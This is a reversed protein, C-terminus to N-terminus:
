AAPSEVRVLVVTVNDKGGRANAADILEQAAGALPKGRCLLAGIEEDPLMKSLGDSCLLYLDGPLPADIQLDVAVTPAIGLARTLRDGLSGVAGTAAGITHDVTLQKLEGGRLRYCRSDGVNAVYARRKSRSFRAAVMTTGMGHLNGDSLSKEHVAANAAEVAHVLESARAHIGEELKDPFGRTKFVESVTQAALQSAVEGALHGGMGDAVLFVGEEELALYSDENHRRRLGKDTHAVATVLILENLGTQEDTEAGEERARLGQQQVGEAFVAPSLLTL